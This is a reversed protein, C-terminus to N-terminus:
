SAVSVFRIQQFAALGEIGGESGLGSDKMGGFPTEPMSAAWHNIAFTGAQVEQGLRDAVRLDNTFAYAALAFPLRNAEAIAADIGSFRSVVALPGFPEENTVRAGLPVDTLITPTHFFGARDPSHGRLAETAGRSVADDILERIASVRRANQMPGMQTAPDFPDGVVLNGAAAVFAAVFRDYAAEEVNFRTPSTCIQGSNRFKAAVAARAVSEVDCDAFVLVPAHGGLEFVTRKLAAGAAGALLKGVLTGGTFSLMRLRPDTAFRQGTTPPDGFVVNLVGPPLGAQDFAEAIMLATGPTGESPKLVMTCGTALAAAIKRAPTISPANWGAIAGAPGVPVPMAMMRMNAVRPPILRGYLRRAEEAAWEFMECATETERLAEAYPKGLELAILSAWQARHTRLWATADRLYRARDLASIRQWVSFSRDAAAIARDLDQEDAWPLRGLTEGTTPDLVDSSRRRETEVWAGDIYLRLSPYAARAVARLSYDFTSM